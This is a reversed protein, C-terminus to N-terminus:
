VTATELQHHFTQCSRYLQLLEPVWHFSEIISQFACGEALLIPLDQSLRVIHVDHKRAIVLYYLYHAARIALKPDNFAEHIPVLFAVQLSRAREDLEFKGQQVSCVMPLAKITEDDSFGIRPWENDPHDLSFTEAFAKKYMWSLSCAVPDDVPASNPNAFEHLKPLLARRLDKLSVDGPRDSLIRYGLGGLLVLRSM